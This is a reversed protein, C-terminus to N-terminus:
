FYNQATKLSERAERGTGIGTVEFKGNGQVMETEIKFVGIM